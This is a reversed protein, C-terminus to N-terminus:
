GQCDGGAEPLEPQHRLPQSAVGPLTSLGSLAARVHTTAGPPMSVDFRAVQWGGETGTAMSVPQGDITLQEIGRTPPLYLAMTVVHTLGDSGGRVYPDVRAPPSYGFDVGLTATGGECWTTVTPHVFEGLKSADANTLYFRVTDDSPPPLAGSFEFSRLAQQAEPDALWAQLDGSRASDVLAGIMADDGFGRAMVTAFLGATVRNLYETRATVDNPYEAYVDGQLFSEANDATLQPGGSVEMPGTVALMRALTRPTIAVVGDVQGLDHDAWFSTLIKAAVPFDPSLNVNYILSLDDGYVGAADTIDAPLETPAVEFEDNSGTDALSLRGQDLDLTAWSGILGGTAREESQNQFVLLYTRPGESGLAAPLEGYLDAAHGALEDATAAQTQLEAFRDRFAFLAGPDVSSLGQAAAHVAARADSVIGREQDIAALAVTGEPATDQAARIRDLSGLLPRAAQNVALDGAVSGERLADVNPGIIPVWSLLRLPPSGAARAATHLDDGAETLSREAAPLDGERAHALATRLTPEAARLSSAAVFLEWTTWIAALALIALVVLGVRFRRRGARHRPEHGTPEIGTPRGAGPDSM